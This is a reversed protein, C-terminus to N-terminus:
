HLPRQGRCAIVPTYTFRGPDRFFSMFEQVCEDYGGPYEKFDYGLKKTVVEIKKLWNFSDRDRLEGKILHHARVDVDISEYGLRYLHSYLKSGAFFDFNMESEVHQAIDLLTRKLRDSLPYHNLSNSDLDILCLIGGPKVISSINQVIDFCDERFYELFFRVWVFDYGSIGTLPRKIDLRRFHVADSGYHNQAYAIRTESVDIGEARGGPQVLGHLISTTKGSGCGIDAISMGPKIGAWLAQREVDSADTKIELRKIEEENEMLYEDM